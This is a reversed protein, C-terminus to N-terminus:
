QAYCVRESEDLSTWLADHAGSSAVLADLAVNLQQQQQQQQQQQVEQGMWAHVSAQRAGPAASHAAQSCANYRARAEAFCVIAEWLERRGKLVQRMNTVYQQKAAIQSRTCILHVLSEVNERNAILPQLAEFVHEEHPHAAAWEVAALQGFLDAAKRLAGQSPGLLLAYEDGADCVRNLLSAVQETLQPSQAAEVLRQVHWRQLVLKGASSM